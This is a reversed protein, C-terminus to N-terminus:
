PLWTIMSASGTAGGSAASGTPAIVSYNGAYGLTGFVSNQQRVDMRIVPATGTKISATAARAPHTRLLDTSYAAWGGVALLLIAASGLAALRTDAMAPAVRPPRRRPRGWSSSTSPAAPCTGSAPM